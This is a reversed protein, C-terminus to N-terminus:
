APAPRNKPMDRHFANMIFMLTLCRFFIRAYNDVIFVINQSVKTKVSIVGVMCNAHMVSFAAMQMLLEVPFLSGYLKPLISKSTECRCFADVARM